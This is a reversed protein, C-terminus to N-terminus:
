EPKMPMNAQMVRTAVIKKVMSIRPQAQIATRANKGRKAINVLHVTLVGRETLPQISGLKALGAHNRVQAPSVELPARHVHVQDGKGEM